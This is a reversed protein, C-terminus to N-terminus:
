NLKKAILDSGMNLTLSDIKGNKDKNFTFQATVIKSYFKNQSMPFVVTSAEGTGQIFLQNKGVTVNFFYNKNLQYKGEYTKLVKPSIIINQITEDTTVRLRSLAKIANSNNPDLQLSKQYNEVANTTDKFILYIEGLSNYVRPSKPNLDRNFKFLSFAENTKNTYLYKYGLEDIMQDHFNFNEPAKRVENRAIKIAKELSNNKLAKQLTSYVPIKPFKYPNSALIDDIALNIENLAVADGNNSLLIYSTNKTINRKIFTRYGFDSGSHEVTKNQNDENLKWGFGYNSVSGDNLKTFNFAENITAISVIKQTYLSQDWLFLDDVNSFIGTSGTCSIKFDDKEGILNYGVARNELNCNFNDCLLTNKMNLPDFINETLFKTLTQGSVKEIILALM